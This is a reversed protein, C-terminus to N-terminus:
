RERLARGVRGCQLTSPRGSIRGDLEQPRLPRRLRGSLPKETALRGVLRWRAYRVEALAVFEAALSPALVGAKMAEVLKGAAPTDSDLVRKANVVSRRSVSLEDAADQLSKPPCIQGTEKSPRGVRMNALEAAATARQREIAGANTGSAKAAKTATKKEKRLRIIANPTAVTQQPVM